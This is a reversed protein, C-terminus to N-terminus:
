RSSRWNEFVEVSAQLHPRFEALAADAEDHTVFFSCAPCQMQRMGSAYFSESSGLYGCKPCHGDHMSRVIRHLARAHEASVDLSLRAAESKAKEMAAACQSAEAEAELFTAPFWAALFLPGLGFYDLWKDQSRWWKWNTRRVGFHISLNGFHISILGAHRWFFTFM